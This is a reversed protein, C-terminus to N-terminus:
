LLARDPYPDSITWEHDGSAVDFFRRGPLEVRASVGPPVTASVAVEGDRATWGVRARGHPTRHETRAWTLGPLPVPALHIRAFGPAAPRLGAVVRHLWDVISGSVAHNFSNMAAYRNPTGEGNLSDWREWMTTAGQTHPYLWSPCATALLMRAAEVIHGTRTLADLVHPTGLVGTAPRFGADQVIAALHTGMAEVLQPERVVGLGIALAYATQTASSLKGDPGIYKQAWAAAIRDALDGYFEAEATHGLVSAARALLATSYFHYTGAILDPDTTAQWPREPPAAPDLWDGYQVGGQPLLGGDSAQAAAVAVQDVWAKM